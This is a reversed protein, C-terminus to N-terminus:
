ADRPSEQMEAQRWEKTDGDKSTETMQHRHTLAEKVAELVFLCVFLCVFFAFFFFFLFVNLGEM